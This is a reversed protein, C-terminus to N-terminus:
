RWWALPSHPCRFPNGLGCAPALETTNTAKYEADAALRKDRIIQREKDLDLGQVTEGVVTSTGAEEALAVPLSLVLSTLGCLALFYLKM